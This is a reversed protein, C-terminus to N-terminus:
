LPEDLKTEELDLDELRENITYNANASQEETLPKTDSEGQKAFTVTTGKRKQNWIYYSAGGAVCLIIIFIIWGAGGNRQPPTVKFPNQIKNNILSKAQQSSYANPGIM